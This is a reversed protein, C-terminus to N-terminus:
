EPMIGLTQEPTAESMGAHTEEPLEEACRAALLAEAVIFDEETTLKINTREGEVLCIRHGAREVLSADDTFAEDYEARYASLLWDTRFAQPTQVARLRSRDVIRTGSGEVARFSDAPEVAPVVAGQEAAAEVVRRILESSALPRVGDQVAILEPESRLAALGSRVSHFRQAGGAAIAHPAVDFRAAFNKWFETYREPLVVIIEAGPLAAAFLNITRALVPQGALLRFQKPLGGGCRRGSGGAVIIVATQREM